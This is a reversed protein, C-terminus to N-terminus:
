SGDLYDDFESVLKHVYTCSDMESPKKNCHKQLAVEATKCANKRNGFKELVNFINEDSKIYERDTVRKFEREFDDICVKSSSFTPNKGFYCYFWIEFCPNSWAVEIGRAKAKGIIVDFDKVEDRDFVIWTETFNPNKQQQKLVEDVLEETRIDSVVTIQLNERVDEPLKRKLGEFYNKETEKANTVILFNGLCFKRTNERRKRRVGDFRVM